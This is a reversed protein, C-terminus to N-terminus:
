GNRKIRTEETITMIALVDDAPRFVLVDVHPLRMVVVGLERGSAPIAVIVPLGDFTIIIKM